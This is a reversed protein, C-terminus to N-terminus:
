KKLENLAWYKKLTKLTKTQSTFKDSTLNNITPKSKFKLDYNYNWGYWSNFAFYAWSINKKELISLLDELYEDKGEAWRVASFEGVFVYEIQNKLRWKNFIDINKEIASKDWYQFGM